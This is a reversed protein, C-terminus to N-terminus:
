RARHLIHGYRRDRTPGVVRACGNMRALKHSANADKQPPERLRRAPLDARLSPTRIIQCAPPKPCIAFISHCNSNVNELEIRLAPLTSERAIQHADIYHLAVANSREMSM